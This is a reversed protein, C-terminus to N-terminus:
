FETDNSDYLMQWKHINAIWQLVDNTSHIYSNRKDRCQPVCENTADSHSSNIFTVQQEFM